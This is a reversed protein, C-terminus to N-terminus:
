MKRQQEKPLSGSDKLTRCKSSWASKETIELHVFYHFRDQLCEKLSELNLRTRLEEASIKDESNITCMWTIM